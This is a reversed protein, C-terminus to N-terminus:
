RLKRIDIVIRSIQDVSGALRSHDIGAAISVCRSRYEATPNYRREASISFGISSATLTKPTIYSVVM